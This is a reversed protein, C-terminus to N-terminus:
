GLSRWTTGGSVVDLFQRLGLGGSVRFYQCVERLRSVSGSGLNVFQEAPLRDGGVLSLHGRLSTGGGGRGMRCGPVPQERWVSLLVDWGRRSDTGGM